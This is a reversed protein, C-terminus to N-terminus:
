RYSGRKIKKNLVKDEVLFILAGIVLLVIMPFLSGIMLWYVYTFIESVGNLYLFNATIGRTIGVILLIITYTVAIFFMKLYKLKNVSVIRGDDDRSNKFPISFSFYGSLGLLLFSIILALFYILSQATSIETGTQNVIFDYPVNINVGDVDTTTTVIYQGQSSTNCYTYNYNGFSDRTMAYNVIISTKNPYQIKTINTFTSNYYSQTLSICDNQKVFGLTQVEANITPLILLILLIILINKM